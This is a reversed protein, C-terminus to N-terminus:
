IQIRYWLSSFQQESVTGIKGQNVNQLTCYSFSAPKMDSKFKKKLSLSRVKKGEKWFICSYNIILDLFIGVGENDHM